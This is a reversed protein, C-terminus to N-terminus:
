KTGQYSLFTVQTISMRQNHSCSLQMRGYGEQSVIWICTASALAWFVWSFKNYVPETIGDPHARELYHSKQSLERLNVFDLQLLIFSKGKVPFKWHM